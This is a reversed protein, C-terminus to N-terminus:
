ELVSTNLRSPKWIFYVVIASVVLSVLAYLLNTSEEGFPIGTQNLTEPYLYVSIVVASNNIFHGWIPLWLSNTWYFIYGLLLGLLLRPFFGFFQLHIASFLIASIWIGIHANKTWNIFIKQLVARFLLEEGIAPVIAVIILVYVLSGVGNFTLMAKILREARQESARMWHEIESMFNPLVMTANWEIIWSLFPTLVIM